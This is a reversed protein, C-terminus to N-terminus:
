WEVNWKRFQLHQQNVASKYKNVVDDDMGETMEDFKNLLDLIEEPIVSSNNQKKKWRMQVVCDRELCIRRLM